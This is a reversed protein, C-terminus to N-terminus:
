SSPGPPAKEAKLWLEYLRRRSVDFRRSLLASAQQQTLGLRRMEIIEGTLAEESSGASDREAPEHTGEIVLVIEGRPEPFHERAEKATGVFVEEHLKTLERCVAISRDPLVADIVELTRLLRQPSEFAVLAEDDFAAEKVLREIDGKTRPLFGIFRFRPARLGSISVAAVPASPGPVSVVEHGAERAAAVLESGPDSIAPTGADTVLAVDMEDLRGVIEPIRGSRNHENYSILRADIRYHYLLVRATRTDEAAILGVDGLVRAARLSLDELNGIPTAVVFLRGM